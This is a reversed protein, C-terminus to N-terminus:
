RGKERRDAARARPNRGLREYRLQIARREPRHGPAGQHVRAAAKLEIPAARRLAADFAPEGRRGQTLPVMVDPRMKVTVNGPM